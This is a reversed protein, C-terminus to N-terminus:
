KIPVWIEVDGMGTRRDFREDYREFFPARVHEIRPAELHAPAVDDDPRIAEVFALLRRGRVYQVLPLGTTAAFARTLNFRSAGANEAIGDPSLDSAFRSEIYWVAKSVPDATSKMQM